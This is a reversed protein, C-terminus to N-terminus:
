PTDGTLLRTAIETTRGSIDAFLKSNLLEDHATQWDGSQLADLMKNFGMLSGIGVWFCLHTLADMRPMDLKGTWPFEAFVQKRADTIDSALMATAIALTIGNSLNHGIGITQHETTDVYPHLRVGECNTIWQNLPITM